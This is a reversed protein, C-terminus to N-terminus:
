FYKVAFIIPTCVPCGRIKSYSKCNYITFKLQDDNNIDECGGAVFSKQHTVAKKILAEYNILVQFLGKM